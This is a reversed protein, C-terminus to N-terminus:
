KLRKQHILEGSQILLMMVDAPNQYQTRSGCDYMATLPDKDLIMELLEGPHPTVTLRSYEEYTMKLFAVNTGIGRNDLLYGDILQTPYALQGNIYIDKVDPYSVVMSKDASLMVPVLQTYDAKTKYVICRPGPVAAGTKHPSIQKACSACFLGIIIFFLPLRFSPIMVNQQM